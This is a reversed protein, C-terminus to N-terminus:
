RPVACAPPLVPRWRAGDRSLCLVTQEQPIKRGGPDTGTWIVIVNALDAHDTIQRAVAARMRLRTYRSRSPEGPFYEPWKERGRGTLDARVLAWGLAVLEKEQGTPTSGAM